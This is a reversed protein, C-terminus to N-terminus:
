NLNFLNLLAPINNVGLKEFIRTKYTSVTSKHIYLKSAIENNSLGAVLLRAIELERISLMEIPSANSKRIMNDLLREKLEDSLYKGTEFFKSFARVIEEQESLKSLFGHAGAKIFNFAFITEELASFILIKISDGYEISLNEVFNLSNGEPFNIDLIIFNINEKKIISKGDNLTSAEFIETNTFHKRILLYVGQRVISHDDIILVKRKNTEM